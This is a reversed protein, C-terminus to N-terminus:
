IRRFGYYNPRIDRKIEKSQNMEKNQSIEKNQNTEMSQNIEKKSELVDENVIIKDEKVVVEEKPEEAVVIKNTKPYYEEIFPETEELTEM